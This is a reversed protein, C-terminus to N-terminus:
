PFRLSPHMGLGEANRGKSNRPVARRNACVVSLGTLAASERHSGLSKAQRRAHNVSRLIRSTAAHDNDWAKRLQNTTVSLSPYNANALVALAAHQPKSLYRNLAAVQILYNKVDADEAKWHKTPIKDRPEISTLLKRLAKLGIFLGDEANRFEICAAHAAPTATSDRLMNEFAPRHPNLFEEVAVVHARVEDYRAKEEGPDISRRGYLLEFPAREPKDPLLMFVCLLADSPEANAAKELAKWAKRLKEDNEDSLASYAALRAARDIYQKGKPTTSMTELWTMIQQPLGINAWACRRSNKM